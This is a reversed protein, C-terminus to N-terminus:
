FFHMAALNRWAEVHGAEAAVSYLAFAREVNKPVGEGRFHISGASLASGSHGQAAAFILKFCFVM